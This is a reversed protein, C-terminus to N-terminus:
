QVIPPNIEFSISCSDFFLFPFFPLLALQICTAFCGPNAIKTAERIQNKNLEPLGYVWETNAIRHDRSLDILKVVISIRSVETLHELNVESDVWKLM